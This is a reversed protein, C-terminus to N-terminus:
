KTRFNYMLLIKIVAVCKLVVCFIKMSALSLYISVNYQSCLKGLSPLDRPLPESWSSHRTETDDLWVLLNRVDSELQRRQRVTREESSLEERTVPPLPSKIPSLGILCLLKTM